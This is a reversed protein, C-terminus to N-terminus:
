IDWNRTSALCPILGATYVVKSMNGVLAYLAEVWWTWSPRKRICVEEEGTARMMWWQIHRESRHSGPTLGRIQPLGGRGRMVARLQKTGRLDRNMISWVYCCWRGQHCAVTDDHRDWCYIDTFLYWLFVCAVSRDSCRLHEEMKQRWSGLRQQWTKEM